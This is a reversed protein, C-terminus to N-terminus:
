GAIIFMDFLDLDSVATGDNLNDALFQVNRRTFLTDVPLLLEQPSLNQLNVTYVLRCHSGHPSLREKIKELHYFCSEGGVRLCNVAALFLPTM